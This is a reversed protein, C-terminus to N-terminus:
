RRELDCTYVYIDSILIEGTGITGIVLRADADLHVTAGTDFGYPDTIKTLTSAYPAPVGAMTLAWYDQDSGLGSYSEFHTPLAPSFDANPTLSTQAGAVTRQSTMRLQNTAVRGIFTRSNNVAVAPDDEVLFVAGTNDAPTTVTAKVVTRVLTHRNSVGIDATGWRALPSTRTGGTINGTTGVIRLGLSSIAFTSAAGTNEVTLTKGRSDVYASSDALFNRAAEVSPRFHWALEWLRLAPRIIPSISSAM